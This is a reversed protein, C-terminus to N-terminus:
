YFYRTLAFSVEKYDRVQNYSVGAAFSGFLGRKASGQLQWYGPWRTATALVQLQLLDDSFYHRLGATYGFGVIELQENNRREKLTAYGGGVVLSPM